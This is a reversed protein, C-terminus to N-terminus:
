VCWHKPVGFDIVSKYVKSYINKKRECSCPSYNWRREKHRSDILYSIMGYSTSSKRVNPLAMHSCDSFGIKNCELDKPWDVFGPSLALNKLLNTIILYRALSIHYRHKNSLSPCQASLGYQPFHRVVRINEPKNTQRFQIITSPRNCKDRWPHAM